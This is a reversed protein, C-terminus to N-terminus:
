EPRDIQTNDEVIMEDFAKDIQLEAQDEASNPEELKIFGKSLLRKLSRIVDVEYMPALQVLSEVNWDNNVIMSLLYFEESQLGDVSEISDRDCLTVPTMHPQILKCYAEALYAAEIKSLTKMLIADDPHKSLDYNLIDLAADFDGRSALEEALKCCVESTGPAPATEEISKIRIVGRRCLEYLFKTVLFESARSLLLIEGFSRKGDILDYVRKAMDSSATEKVLPRETHCLVINPNDLTRRMRNMEDSRQAGALLLNGVRLDLKVLDPDPQSDHNFEFRADTWEFMRYVAEEAKAVVYRNVEAESIVGSDILIAGLSDGTEAQLSLARQLTQEDIRGRSLLFQGLRSPPDNAAFGSIRGEEFWLTTTSKEHQFELLGTKKYQELCQLLEHLPLTELTGTLPM